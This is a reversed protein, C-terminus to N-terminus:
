VDNDFAVGGNSLVVGEEGERGDSLDGLIQFVNAFRGGQEDSVVVGETFVGGDVTAGSLFDGGADAVM